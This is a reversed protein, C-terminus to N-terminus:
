VEYVVTDVLHASCHASCQGPNPLCNGGGGGQQGEYDGQGKYRGGGVIKEDDVRGRWHNFFPHRCRGTLQEGRESVDIPLIQFWFVSSSTLGHITKAWFGKLYIGLSYNIHNLLRQIKAM